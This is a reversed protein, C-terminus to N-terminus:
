NIPLLCGCNECTHFYEPLEEDQVIESHVDCCLLVKRKKRSYVVYTANGGCNMYECKNDKKIRRM